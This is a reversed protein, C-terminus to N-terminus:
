PAAQEAEQNEENTHMEDKQDPVQHKMTDYFLPMYASEPIKYPGGLYDPLLDPFRKYLPTMTDIFLDGMLKGIVTRYEIFNEQTDHDRVFAASQNLLGGVRALLHSLETAESPTMIEQLVDFRM